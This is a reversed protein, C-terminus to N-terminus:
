LQKVLELDKMINTTAIKRDITPEEEVLKMYHGIVSWDNITQNVQYTSLNLKDEVSKWTIEKSINAM